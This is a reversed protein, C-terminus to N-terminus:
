VTIMVLNPLHRFRNRLYVPIRIIVITFGWFASTGDPCELYVPNRIAIGRGGQKLDFPGQMTVINKDRGYRCIEGRSEDHILDIKGAENGAEPYIDTVVGDPAVQISQVFDTMLNGAVKQFNDIKGNESLVIEELTDTIAVGRNMDNQLREAYTIANLETVARVQKLNTRYSHYLVAALALCGALFILVPLILKKNHIKQSHM